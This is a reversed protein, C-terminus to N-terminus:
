SISLPLTFRLYEIATRLSVIANSCGLGKKFGFQLHDSQLFENCIELLVSEFLKSIVAILTIGRYNSVNNIDGAKDKVLPVILGVGFKDPVFGHLIMSRFLFCIHIVLSPHAHVLTISFVWAQPLCSFFAHDVVLITSTLVNFHELFTACIIM